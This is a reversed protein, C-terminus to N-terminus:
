KHGRLRANEETLRELQSSLAAIQGELHEIQSKPSAPGRQWDQSAEERQRNYLSVLASRAALVDPTSVNRGAIELDRMLKELTADSEGTM